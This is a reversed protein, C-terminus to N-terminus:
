KRKQWGAGRTMSVQKSLSPGGGGGAKKPATPQSPRTPESPRTAEAKSSMRRIDALLKGGSQVVENSIDSLLDIASKSIRGDIKIGYLSLTKRHKESMKEAPGYEIAMENLKEVTLPPFSPTPDTSKLGGEEQRPTSPPSSKGPVPPPLAPPEIPDNSRLLAKIEKREKNTQSPTTIKVIKNIEEDDFEDQLQKRKQEAKEPDTDKLVIFEEVLVQGKPKVTSDADAMKGIGSKPTPERIALDTQGEAIIAQRKKSAEENQKDKYKTLGKMLDKTRLKSAMAKIGKQEEM